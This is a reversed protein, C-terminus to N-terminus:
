TRQVIGLFSRVVVSRSVLEGSCEGKAIAQITQATQLISNFTSTSLLAIDHLINGLARSGYKAKSWACNRPVQKAKPLSRKTAVVSTIPTEFSLSQTLYM